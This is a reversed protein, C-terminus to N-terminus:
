KIPMKNYPTQAIPILEMVKVSDLTRSIRVNEM